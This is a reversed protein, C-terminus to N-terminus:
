RHHSIVESKKSLVYLPDRQDRLTLFGSEAKLFFTKIKIKFELILFLLKKVKGDIVMDGLRLLDQM